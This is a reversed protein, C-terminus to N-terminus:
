ACSNSAANAPTRSPGSRRGEDNLIEQLERAEEDSLRLELPHPMWGPIAPVDQDPDTTM